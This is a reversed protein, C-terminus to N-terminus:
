SLPWGTAGYKSILVKNGVKVNFEIKKGNDDLKGTGVAVVNRRPDQGTQVIAPWKGVLRVVSGLVLGTSRAM